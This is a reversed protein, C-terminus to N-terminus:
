KCKYRMKIGQIDKESLGKRQGIETIRHGNIICEFNHKPKIKCGGSGESYHMISCYDYGIGYDTGEQVSVKWYNNDNTCTGSGDDILTVYRDRDFHSREPKFGLAHLFEHLITGHANSCSRDGSPDTFSINM